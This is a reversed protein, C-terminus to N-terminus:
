CSRVFDQIAQAAREASGGRLPYVADVAERRREALYLPDSLAHFACHNLNGPDEVTLGPMYWPFRIGEMPEDHYWPANLNLVPRNLSAFEYVASTADAILLDADRFVEDLTGIYPIGIDRCIRRM